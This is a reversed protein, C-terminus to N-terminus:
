GVLLVLAVVGRPRRLHGLGHRAKPGIGLFGVSGARGSRLLLCIRFRVRVAIRRFRRLRVHALLGGPHLWLSPCLMASTRNPKDVSKWGPSVLLFVRSQEFSSSCKSKMVSADSRLRTMWFKCSFVFVSSKTLAVEM